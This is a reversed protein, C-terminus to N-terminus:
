LARVNLAGAAHGMGVLCAAYQVASAAPKAVKREPGLPSLHLVQMASEAFARGEAQRNALTIVQNLGFVALRLMEM